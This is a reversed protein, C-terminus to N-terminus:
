SIMRAPLFFISVDREQSAKKQLEISLRSMEYQFSHLFQSLRKLMTERSTESSISPNGIDIIISLEARDGNAEQVYNHILDFKILDFHILDRPYERPLHLVLEPPTYLIIHNVYSWILYVCSRWTSSIHIIHSSLLVDYSWMHDHLKKHQWDLNHTNMHNCVVM